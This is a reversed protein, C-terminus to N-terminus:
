LIGELDDREKVEQVIAQYLNKGGQSGNFDFGRERADNVILRIDQSDM